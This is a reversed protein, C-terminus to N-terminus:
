GKEAKAMEKAYEEESMAGGPVTEEVTNPDPAVVSESHGCGMSTLALCFGLVSLMGMAFKM